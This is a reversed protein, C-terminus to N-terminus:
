LVCWNFVSEDLPVSSLWSLSVPLCVTQSEWLPVRVHQKCLFSSTKLFFFPKMIWNSEFVCVRRVSRFSPNLSCIMFVAGYSRSSCIRNRAQKWWRESSFSVAHMLMKMFPNKNLILMSKFTKGKCKLCVSLKRLGLPIRLGLQLAKSLHM